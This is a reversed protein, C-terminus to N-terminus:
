CNATCIMSADAEACTGPSLCHFGRFGPPEGPEGLRVAGGDMTTMHGLLHTGVNNFGFLTMLENVETESLYDLLVRYNYGSLGRENFTLSDIFTERADLPLRELLPDVRASMSSLDNHSRIEAGVRETHIQQPLECEDVESDSAYTVPLLWGLAVLLIPLITTTKM